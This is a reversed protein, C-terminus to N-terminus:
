RPKLTEFYENLPMLFKETLDSFYRRLINHLSQSNLQPDVFAKLIKDDKSLSRKHTTQHLGDKMDIFGKFPSGSKINSNNQNRLCKGVNLIHPWSEVTRIFHPNTIGIIVSRPPTSSLFNKFDKDQMTLYPRFDGGYHLPSILDLIALIANSCSSPTSGIVVISEGLLVLEYLVFLDHLFSKCSETIMLPPVSALLQYETLLTGTARRNVSFVSKEYIQSSWDKPLEVQLINGLFPLEMLRGFEPSAWININNCATELCEQACSSFFTSMLSILKFFLGHFPHLTLIVLSKQTCGRRISEDRLQHFFVYGFIYQDSSSAPQSKFSAPISNSRFRFCFISDGVLFSNSDPM